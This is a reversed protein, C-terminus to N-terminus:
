FTFNEVFDLSAINLSGGSFSFDNSIEGVQQVTRIYKQELELKKKEKDEDDDEELAKVAVKFKEKLKQTALQSSDNLLQKLENGLSSDGNLAAEIAEKNAIDGKVKIKGDVGIEFDMDANVDLNRSLLLRNIKDQVAESQEKVRDSLSKSTDVAAAENSNGAAMIQQAQDSLDLIFASSSGSANNTEVTDNAPKASGFGNLPQLFSSVSLISM